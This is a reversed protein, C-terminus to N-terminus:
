YLSLYQLVSILHNMDSRVSLVTSVIVFASVGFLSHIEKRAIKEGLSLFYNLQVAFYKTKFPEQNWGVPSKSPVSNAM